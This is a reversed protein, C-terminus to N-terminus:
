NASDATEKLIQLQEFTGDVNHSFRGLNEFATGITARCTQTGASVEQSAASLVSISNVIERNASLVTEVERTMNLVAEQLEHMGSEVQSFSTNVEGVRQRQLNICETSEEIGAQTENTVATLRNIIATIQETSVKTEEALNRIEEAVVAFGKGAEGARAAEISANLALLNTQSSINLISETIGSVQKVNDVLQEVTQSIRAINQDVLNSQAQLDDARNKGDIIVGKLDETTIKANLALANAAELSDQINSTMDAQNGVALATSESSGSIADMASDATSMADNIVHLSEVIEQFDNDLKHVIGNVVNAVQQRRLAEDAIVAQDEKSFDILLSIAWYSAFIGLLFGAMILIGYNLLVKDGEFYLMACKIGGIVFTGIAGLMVVLSNLYIMLGILTPFVLMMVVVGNGFVLVAYAILFIASFLVMCRKVTPMIRYIVVSAILAIAYFSCRLYLSTTIGNKSINFCEVITYGIYCIVLIICMVFNARHYQEPTLDKRKILKGM